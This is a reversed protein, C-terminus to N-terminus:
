LTHSSVGGSSYSSSCASGKESEKTVGLVTRRRIAARGCICGSPGESISSPSGGVSSEEHLVLLVSDEVVYSPGNPDTVTVLSGAVGEVLGGAAHPQGVV